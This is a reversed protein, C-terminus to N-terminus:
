LYHHIPLICFMISIEGVKWSGIRVKTGGVQLGAQRSDRHSTLFVEKKNKITVTKYPLVERGTM